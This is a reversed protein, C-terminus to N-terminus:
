QNLTRWVTEKLNYKLLFNAGKKRYTVGIINLQTVTVMSFFCNVFVRIVQSRPTRTEHWLLWIQAVLFLWHFRVEFRFNVACCVLLSYVCYVEGTTETVITRWVIAKEWFVAKARSRGVSGVVGRGTVHPTFIFSVEIDEPNTRPTTTPPFTAIGPAHGQCTARRHLVQVSGLQPPVKIEAYWTIVAACQM